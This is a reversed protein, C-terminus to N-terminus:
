VAGLAPSATGQSKVVTRREGAEGGMMSAAKGCPNIVARASCRQSSSRLARPSGERCSWPLLAPEALSPEERARPSSLSSPLHQIFGILVQGLSLPAPAPAAVAAAWPQGLLM